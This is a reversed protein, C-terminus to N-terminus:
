EIGGEEKLDYLEMKMRRICANCGDEFSEDAGDKILDINHIIREFAKRIIEKEDITPQNAVIKMVLKMAQIKEVLINGNHFNGSEFYQQKEKEVCQIEAKISEILASKSIYDGSSM